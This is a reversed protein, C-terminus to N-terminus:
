RAARRHSKPAPSVPVASVPAIPDLRAQAQKRRRRRRRRWLVVAVLTTVLDVGVGIAVAWVWWPRHPADDAEAVFTTRQGPPPHWTVTRGKVEGNAFRVDGPFTIRVLSTGSKSAAPSTTPPRGNTLDLEGSVTYHDGVHQIRAALKLERLPVGKYTYKKGVLTATRYPEITISGRSPRASVRSEKDVAALFKQESSGAAKLARREVAVLFTGDVTDNQSVRLEVDLKLCGGLLLILLVGTTVGGLLRTM